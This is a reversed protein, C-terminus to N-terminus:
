SQNLSIRVLPGAYSQHVVIPGSPIFIARIKPPSRKVNMPNAVNGNVWDSYVLNSPRGYNLVRQPSFRQRGFGDFEPYQIFQNKIRFPYITGANYSMPFPRAYLSLAMADTQQKWYNKQMENLYNWRQQYQYQRDMPHMSSASSMGYQALQAYSLIPYTSNSYYPTQYYPQTSYSPLFSPQQGILRKDYPVSRTQNYSGFSAM